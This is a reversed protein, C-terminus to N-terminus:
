RITQLQQVIWLIISHVSLTLPLNARTFSLHLGLKSTTQFLSFHTAGREFYLLIIPLIVICWICLFTGFLNKKAIRM